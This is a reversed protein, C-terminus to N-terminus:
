STYYSIPSPKAPLYPCLQLCSSPKPHISYGEEKAQFAAICSEEEEEEEKKM